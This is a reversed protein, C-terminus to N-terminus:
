CPCHPRGRGTSAVVTGVVVLHWGSPSDAYSYPHSPICTQIQAHSLTRARLPVSTLIWIRVHLDSSFLTFRRRWAKARRSRLRADLRIRNVKLSSLGGQGTRPLKTSRSPIPIATKPCPPPTRPGPGPRPGRFPQGQLGAPHVEALGVGVAALPRRQTTRRLGLSIGCRTLPTPDSVIRAEEVVWWRGDREPPALRLSIVRGACTALSPFRPVARL